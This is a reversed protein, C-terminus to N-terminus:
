PTCGWISQHICAGADSCSDLTCPDGDDCDVPSHVCGTQPDCSDQTCFSGDDCSIPVGGTCVGDQFTSNETCLNGDDCPPGDTPGCDNRGFYQAFIAIDGSDTIGDQNLDAHGINNQFDSIFASLDSGDVDHDTDIDGICGLCDNGPDWLYPCNDDLDPIQDGDSDDPIGVAFVSFHDTCACLINNVISSHNEACPFLYECKNSSGSPTCRVMRLELEEQPSLGTDIYQICIEALGDFDFDESIEIDACLPTTPTLTVGAIDGACEAVTIDTDGGVTVNPFTVTVQGTDDQITVPEGSPPTNCIGEDIDNLGNCNNDKGDCIEEEPAGPVCTDTPVGNLCDMQGIDTCEGTGCNTVDGLWPEDAGDPTAPNCDNDNGDCVEANNGTTDSCVPQGGSCSSTGENCLDSDPGDCATGFWAEGAGDLTSANCDNDKNDCQEPAGPYITNDNDNCDGQEVTYGDHDYDEIPDFSVPIRINGSNLDSYRSIRVLVEEGQSMEYTIYSDRINGDDWLACATRGGVEWDDNAALENSTTGPCGAHLSLVTDIGTDLGYMDNTGCTGIRLTGFAPATFRRWIDPQGPEGVTASGDNTAWYLNGYMPGALNVPITIADACNDNIPPTSSIEMKHAYLDGLKGETLLIAWGYGPPKVIRFDNDCNGDLYYCPPPAILWHSWIRKGDQDLRTSAIDVSDSPDKYTVIVGNAGDSVMQPYGEAGSNEPDDGSTLIRIGNTAWQAAGSASGLRQLYLDSDASDRYDRWSLFAGGAGDSILTPDEGKAYWELPNVGASLSDLVIVGDAPWQVAGFKNLKQARVQGRGTISNGEFGWWGVIVGDDSDAAIPIPRSFLHASPFTYETGVTIGGAAWVNGLFIRQVQITQTDQNFWAAYAGGTNIVLIPGPFSFSLGGTNDSILSTKIGNVPPAIEIGGVGGYPLNGQWDIYAVRNSWGIYAGGVGDGCISPGTANEFVLVGNPSNWQKQGNVDLRQARIEITYPEDDLQETWVVILGGYTTNWTDLAAVPNAADMTGSVLVGHDGWLLNGNADM